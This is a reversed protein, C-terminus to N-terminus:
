RVRQRQRAAKLSVGFYGIAGRGPQGWGVDIRIVDVFPVLFRVGLGYGDIASAADFDASTNWAVGLDAFGVVQVGAYFNVGAVRFATVPQVVFTYEVSGIFQNRGRRSDLDWGRVSNGGGLAFQLYEPLGVGVEGTQLTALAFAGLGHRRSLRQYRRGDLTLTWSSADGFLHDVQVEAWTGLRPDTSSDLTDLAVFGGITPVVDTGDPSLSAGSTGSDLMTLDGAVGVRLGRPLNRSVRVDATLAHEDFDYVTNRRHTDSFGIHWALTAPTITTSDISFTFATEGGFRMSSSTQAGYGFLNIAKVGPGASIGNEDTVRFVILPLVRLTEAVTVDVVVADRDLRPAIIVSSFVRLEDLRRRDAEVTARHFPQGPRTSLHREVYGAPLKRVGVVNVERVVIGELPDVTQAGAIGATVLSVALVLAGSIVAAM